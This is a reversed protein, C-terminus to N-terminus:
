SSFGRAVRGVDPKAFRLARLKRYLNTRQLGLSEAADPIRDHHRAVVAAVYERESRRRAERLSAGLATHLLSPAYVVEPAHAPRPADHGHGNGPVGVIEAPSLREHITM